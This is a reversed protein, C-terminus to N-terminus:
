LPGELVEAIEQIFRHAQDIRTKFDAPLGREFEDVLRALKLLPMKAKAAHQVSQDLRQNSQKLQEALAAHERQLRMESLAREIARLLDDSEFPKQLYDRVGLRLAIMALEESGYATMLIAPAQLRGARLARLVDLGTIDPLQWDLLLVDPPSAEALQLAKWGAAAEIVKFGHEELVMRVFSRISLNDELVLVSEGGAM